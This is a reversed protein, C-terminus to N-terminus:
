WRGGCGCRRACCGRGCWWCCCDTVNRYGVGSCRCGTQRDAEDTRYPAAQGESQDPHDSRSRGSEGSRPEQGSRGAGGSGLAPGDSGQAARGSGGSGGFGCCTRAGCPEHVECCRVERQGAQVPGTARAAVDQAQSRGACGLEAGVSRETRSPRQVPREAIRVSGHASWRASEPVVAAPVLSWVGSRADARVPGVSGLARVLVGVPVAAAASEVAGAGAAAASGARSRAPGQPGQPPAYQQTVHQPPRQYNPAPQPGSGPSHPWSQPTPQRSARATALEPRPQGPAGNGSAGGAGNPPTQGPRQQGRDNDSM